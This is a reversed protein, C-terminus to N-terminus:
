IYLGKNRIYAEVNEPVFSAIDLGNKVRSRIETSSMPWPSVEFFYVPKKLAHGYCRENEFFRYGQEIHKWLYPGAKEIMDGDLGPRKMVILSIQDLIGGFAKWTHIEFFADSGMILMLEDGPSKQSLFYRITDITYSPGERKLEVDSIVFGELNEFCLRTMALRDMADAVQKQAKHPPTASPIVIVRELGFENKVDLAVHLHGRHVPDFTGGFLGVRSVCEGPRYSSQITEQDAVIIVM